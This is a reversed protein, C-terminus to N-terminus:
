DLRPISDACVKWGKRRKKRRPGSRNEKYGSSPPKSSNEPSKAPRKLGALKAELKQMRVVLEEIRKAQAHV